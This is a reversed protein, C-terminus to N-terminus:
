INLKTNKHINKLQINKLFLNISVNKLYTKNLLDKHIYIKNDNNKNINELSQHMKEIISNIKIKSCKLISKELLFHSFILM